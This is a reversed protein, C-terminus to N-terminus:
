AGQMVGGGAEGARVQVGHHWLQAVITGRLVAGERVAALPTRGEVEAGSHAFVDDEAHPLEPM